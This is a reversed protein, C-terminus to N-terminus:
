CPKSAPALWARRKAVFDLVHVLPWKDRKASNCPGCAPRLNCLMHAGWKAIPKVHDICTAVGGCMWCNNGWYAMRADLQEPTFRVTKVKRKLARRKASNFAERKRDAATKPKKKRRTRDYNTQYEAMKAANEPDAKYDALWAAREEPHSAVWKMAAPSDCGPNEKRRDRGRKAEAAKYEPTAKHEAIKAKVEPRKRREREDAAHKALVGPDERKKAAQDNIYTKCYYHRGDPEAARKGFEEIPHERKHGACWKM